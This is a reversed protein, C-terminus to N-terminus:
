AEETEDEMLFVVRFTDPSVAREFAYDYQAFPVRESVLDSVDIHGQSLLNAAEQFSKRTHKSAGTIRIETYHVKNPSLAIPTDPNLSGYLVLTGGMALIELAQEVAKPGGATFFVAKAGIGGNLDEVFQKLDTQFPDVAHDAGAALAKDRRGADPESVIVRAGKLRALKIHLMGMIGAGQVVVTDGYDLEGMEVSRLVCAVPEALSGLAPDIQPDLRYVEYDRAIVHEAFGAPGWAEGDVTKSEGYLCLNDQNTRCYYCTGCRTLSAVAVTDGVQIDTKVESGIAEVIGCIEHGGFFPYTTKTYAKQEWTCIGCAKVNVKVENPHIERLAIEQFGMTLPATMILGKM